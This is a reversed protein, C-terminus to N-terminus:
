IVKTAQFFNIEFHIKDFCIPNVRGRFITRVIQLMVIKRMFYSFFTLFRLIKSVILYIVEM